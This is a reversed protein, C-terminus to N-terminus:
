RRDPKLLIACSAALGQISAVVFMTGKQAAVPGLCGCPADVFISIGLGCFSIGICALLAPVRFRKVVLGVAILFEVGTIGVYFEIPLFTTPEPLALLKAIAVVLLWFCLAAILSRYIYSLM